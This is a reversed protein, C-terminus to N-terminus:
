IITPEIVRLSKKKNSQQLLYNPTYNIHIFQDGETVNHKIQQLQMLLNWITVQDQQPNQSAVYIIITYNGQKTTTLLESLLIKGYLNINQKRTKNQQQLNLIIELLLTMIRKHNKDGLIIFFQLSIRKIGQPMDMQCCQGLTKIEM